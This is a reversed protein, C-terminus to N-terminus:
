SSINKPFYRSNFLENYTFTFKLDNDKMVKYIRNKLNDYILDLALAPHRLHYIVDLFLILDTIYLNQIKQFFEPLLRM